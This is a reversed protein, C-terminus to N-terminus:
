AAKVPGRRAACVVRTGPVAALAAGAARALEDAQLPALPHTTAIGTM